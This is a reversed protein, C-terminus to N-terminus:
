RLFFTRVAVSCKLLEESVSTWSPLLVGLPFGCLCFSFFPFVPDVNGFIPCSFGVSSIKTCVSETIRLPDCRFLSLFSRSRCDDFFFFFFRLSVRLFPFVAPHFRYVCFFSLFSLFGGGCFFVFFCFFFCVLSAVFVEFCFFVSMRAWFVIISLRIRYICRV